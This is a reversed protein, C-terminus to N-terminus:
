SIKRKLVIVFRLNNIDSSLKVKGFYGVDNKEKSISEIEGIIIGKPFIDSLGSTIVKDGVKINEGNNIGKVYLNYNDITLVKSIDNILISVPNTFGTILKVISTKNSSDIVKGIMGDKTIVIQNNSIGDELGKNITIENLWYSNNREIVSANIYDFDTLSEKIDLLNKLDKNEKEVEKNIFTYLDNNDKRLPTYLIDRLIGGFRFDNNIEYYSFFLLLIIIFILFRNNNEVKKYKRKMSDGIILKGMIM